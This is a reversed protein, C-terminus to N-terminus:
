MDLARPLATEWIRRLEEVEADVGGGDAKLTLRSGGVQGVDAAPVGATEAEELIMDLREPPAAVLARAQTESFLSVPDCEVGVEAGLGRPFCAEALAVALGGEALDHATAIWGEFALFRLLNSLNEEAALDVAPPRGQEVGYLLRLYASGGFDGADRGLLVIRHGAAVFCSAPLQGLDPILGVM